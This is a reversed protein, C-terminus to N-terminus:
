IKFTLKSQSYFHKRWPIGPAEINQWCKRYKELVKSTKGFSETNKWFKRYKALIKSTKGSSEPIEENEVTRGSAKPKDLPKKRKLTRIKTRHTPLYRIEGELWRFNSTIQYFDRNKKPFRCNKTFRRHNNQDFDIFIAKRREVKMFSLSKRDMERRISLLNGRMGCSIDIWDPIRGTENWAVPAAMKLIWPQWGIHWIDPRDASKWFASQLCHVLM